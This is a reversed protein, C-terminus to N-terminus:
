LGDLCVFPVSVTEEKDEKDKEDELAKLTSTSVNSLEKELKNLSGQSGRHTPTTAESEELLTSQRNINAETKSM